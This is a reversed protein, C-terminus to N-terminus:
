LFKEIGNLILSETPSVCQEEKAKIKHEKHM